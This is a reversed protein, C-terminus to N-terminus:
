KEDAVYYDETLLQGSLYMAVAGPGRQAITQKLGEAVANIAKPWNCNIGNIQPQLLRGTTGMTQGLASGKVCLEAWIRRIRM